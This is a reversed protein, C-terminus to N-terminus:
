GPQSCFGQQVSLCSRKTKRHSVFCRSKLVPLTTAIRYRTNIGAAYEDYWNIVDKYRGSYHALRLVQYAYKQKFLDKKAVAYLQQGSKILKAM